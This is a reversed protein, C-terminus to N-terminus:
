PEMNLARSAGLPFARQGLEYPPKAAMPPPEDGLECRACSARLRPSTYPQPEARSSQYTPKHCMVGRRILGSQQVAVTPAVHTLLPLISCWPSLRRRMSRVPIATPLLPAGFSPIALILLSRLGDRERLGVLANWADSDAQSHRGMPVDPVGSTHRREVAVTKMLQQLAHVRQQELDQAEKNLTEVDTLYQQKQTAFVGPYTARFGEM